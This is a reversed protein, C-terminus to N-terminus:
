PMGARREAPQAALPEAPGMRWAVVVLVAAMAAGIALAAAGLRQYVSAGAYAGAVLGCWLLLYPAWGFRDRGLLSAALHQGLKVLAGTMYTVGISVEGDRQFVCNAVGMAVAMVLTTWREDHATALYTACGLLVAVLALVAAKRATGTAAALLSGAVVGGVFCAILGAATAAELPNGALGVALRTSNGSMFSVFLGGLKLFGIADVYGALAALCAALGWHRKRYKKM